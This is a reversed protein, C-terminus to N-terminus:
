WHLEIQYDDGVDYKKDTQFLRYEGKYKVKVVYGHPYEIPLEVNECVRKFVVGHRHKKESSYGGLLAGGAAIESRHSSNHGLAYGLAGGILARELTNERRHRRSKVAKDFCRYEQKYRTATGQKVAVVTGSDSLAWSPTTAFSILLPILYQGKHM